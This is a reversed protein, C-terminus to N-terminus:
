KGNVLDNYAQSADEVTIASESKIPAGNPGSHENAVTDKLGLDRAIINANLLGAAAGGFKQNRICKEVYSVVRSFNEKRRYDAWTTDDVDLFIQLGDLTMARMKPLVELTVNGQFAFAETSELPNENVWEFFEECAGLLQEPTEFVPNRGHSSRVAWFRNGKPAVM